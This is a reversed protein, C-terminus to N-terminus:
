ARNPDERSSNMPGIEVTDAGATGQIELTGAILSGRMAVVDAAAAAAAQLTPRAVSLALRTEFRLVEPRVCRSAFARAPRSQSPLLFM